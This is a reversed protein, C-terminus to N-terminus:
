RVSALSKMGKTHRKHVTRTSYTGVHASLTGQSSWWLLMCWKLTAIIPGLFLLRLQHLIVKALLVVDLLLSLPDAKKHDGFCGLSQLHAHVAKRPLTHYPRLSISIFLPHFACCVWIGIQFLDCACAKWFREM